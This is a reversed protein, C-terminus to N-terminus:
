ASPGGREARSAYCRTPTAPPGTLRRYRSLPAADFVRVLAGFDERDRRAAGRFGGARGRRPGADSPLGRRAARPRVRDHPLGRYRGGRRARARPRARRPTALPLRPLPRRCPARARPLSARGRDRRRPRHSRSASSAPARVRGDAGPAGRRSSRRPSGRRDRAAGRRGSPGGARRTGAGAGARSRSRSSPLPWSLPRRPSRSASRPRSARARVAGVPAGALPRGRRVVGGAIWGVVVGGAAVASSEIGTLLALQWRRAGSWTLRRRADGVDRRLGRARPARLRSAPGRGRRRRPARAQRRRHGEEAERLEEEPATVAFSGSRAALAARAREVGGILGDIEWLRPRGSDLGCWAYSRYTRSLAPSGTLFDVGEAVVLPAPAPRHYRGSERLAPAVEADATANDTPELFDGFLRRSRPTATGVEVLRLGRASPLRGQGRALVECHEATCTSPPAGLPPDRLARARRGRRARPVKGRRHEASSRSRSRIGLDLDRAREAQRDLRAHAEEPGAPVGFWVARVARVSAPLREVAQSTSRDAAITVSGLVASLAAAAVALGLAAALAGSDRRRPRRWAVWAVYRASSVREGEAPPPLLREEHPQRLDVDLVLELLRQALRRLVGLRVDGPPVGQAPGSAPRRARSPAPSSRRSRAPAGAGAAVPVLGVRRTPSSASLSEALAAALSDLLAEAPPVGLTNALALLAARACNARPSSAPPTSRRPRTSFGRGRLWSELLEPTAIDDRAWDPIETNVFDQVLDLPPPAPARGGPQFSAPM